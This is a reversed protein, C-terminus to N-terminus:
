WEEPNLRQRTAFRVWYEQVADNLVQAIPRKEKVSIRRPRELHETTLGIEATTSDSL